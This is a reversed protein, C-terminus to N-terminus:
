LRVRGLILAGSAPLAAQGALLAPATEQWHFSSDPDALVQWQGDPLAAHRSVDAASYFLLLEDWRSSPSRNDLQFAAALRGPRWAGLLRAAAEPRKDCLAPLQRRLASRFLM